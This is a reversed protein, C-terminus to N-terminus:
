EPPTLVAGKNFIQVMMTAFLVATIGIGQLFGVGEGVFTAAFLIAFVPELCSAV